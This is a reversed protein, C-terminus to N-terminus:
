KYQKTFTKIFGVSASVITIEQIDDDDLWAKIIPMDTPLEPADADVLKDYTGSIMSKNQLRIQKQYLDAFAMTM